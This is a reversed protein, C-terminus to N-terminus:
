TSVCGGKTLPAKCRVSTALASEPRCNTAIVVLEGDHVRTAVVYVRCGWVWRKGSMVRQSGQQLNGFVREGRQHTKDSRSSIRDSHRLRIRFPITRPLLLFSFWESGVFERDATLCRINAQPFVKEFRELLDMREDSHSNGRQHLLTWM